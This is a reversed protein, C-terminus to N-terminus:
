GCRPWASCRSCGRRRAQWCPASQTGAGAMALSATASRKPTSRPPRMCGGPRRASRSAAAAASPWCRPLRQRPVSALSRGPPCRRARRRPVGAAVAAAAGGVAVLAVATLETRGFREDLWRVGLLVLLAAGVAMLPVVLALPALALAAVQAVWAALDLLLALLWLPRRALAPLLRRAPASARVAEHKQVAATANYALGSAVALIGGFVLV